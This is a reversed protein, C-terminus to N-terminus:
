QGRFRRRLRLAHRATGKLIRRLGPVLDLARRLRVAVRWTGSTEIAQARLNAARARGAEAQARSEAAQAQARLRLLADRYAELLRRRNESNQLASNLAHCGGELETQLETVRTKASTLDQDTRRMLEVRASLVDQMRSLKATLRAPEVRADALATETRQLQDRLDSVPAWEAEIASPAVGATSGLFQSYRDGSLAHVTLALAQEAREAAVQGPAWRPTRWLAQRLSEGSAIRELWCGREALSAPLTLERRCALLGAEYAFPLLQRSCRKFNDRNFAPFAFYYLDYGCDLLFGALEISGPTENCEIWLTAHERRLLATSDRLIPLELGEVDLKILDFGGQQGNLTALSIWTEPAAVAITAGTNPNEAFSTTGMNGEVQWGSYRRDEPGILAGIVAAPAECNREVNCKLLPVIAPNAEVFSVQRLPKLSSLGLGFTGLYAGIDAVRAGDDVVSAIFEIELQAWEGYCALFRSILDTEAHPVLVPGYRTDILRHAASITAAAPSVDPV